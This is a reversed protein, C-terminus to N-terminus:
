LMALPQKRAPPPFTRDLEALLAPELKLDLAAVNERVHEPRGAKPIVIVGEQHLLWALALQAPTVGRSAALRTLAKHGLMRAQEIPSYAMVPVSAKRCWPLLDWEVGRRALNYLVQNTTAAADGAVGELEAMDDADFNSVGWSVIKGARRLDDFGAVTDALSVSGRWHLLYVDIRDTALRKLSRECAAVVGKRSANHPYVKSVIFAGDRRGKVAEGVIEEAGGDGYMEATDILNVGLDLGLKLAAVAGRRDGGRDGFGWTGQGLVPMLQGSVLKLQRMGNEKVAGGLRLGGARALFATVQDVIIEPPAAVDVRVAGESEGPPELTAFQSALLGPPMFHGHRAAIRREILEYSGDLFVFVVDDHGDRLIARYHARLASCALVMGAGARRAGDLEVALRQLWPQRDGDDLPESRSMKAINAKPHFHDGEVFRVGLREALREGVTTKGTGSVGMVVLLPPAAAARHGM